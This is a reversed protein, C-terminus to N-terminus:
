GHYTRSSRKTSTFRPVRALNVRSRAYSSQLAPRIMPFVNIAWNTWGLLRQWEVLTHCRSASSDIFHCIAIILESKSAAPMSITMDQPDLVPGIIELSPGFVQKHKEHPLGIEDWLQLLCVQKRPYHAGYLAYLQLTPDTDYSWANDMYHLLDELLYVHIAIWIVMGMFTCWIRPSTRSGFAMCWDVHRMGDITIVQKIQWLPHM